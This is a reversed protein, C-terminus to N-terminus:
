HCKIVQESIKIDNWIVNEKLMQKKNQWMRIGCFPTSRQAIQHLCTSSICTPQRQHMFSDCRFSRSEFASTFVWASYCGMERSLRTVENEKRTKEWHGSIFYWVANPKHIQESTWDLWLNPRGCWYKVNKRWKTDDLFWQSSHTWRKSAQLESEVPEAQIPTFVWKEENIM